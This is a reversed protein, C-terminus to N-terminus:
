PAILFSREVPDASKVKPEISRGYQWAIVTVKVPLKARPPIKSFVLEDNVV